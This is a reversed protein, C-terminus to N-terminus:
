YINCGTRWPWFTIDDNFGGPFGAMTIYIYQSTSKIVMTM